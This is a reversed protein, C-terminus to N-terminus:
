LQLLLLLQKLTEEWKQKKELKGANLYTNYHIYTAIHIVFLSFFCAKKWKMPCQEQLVMLNCYYEDNYLIRNIYWKSFFAQQTGTM